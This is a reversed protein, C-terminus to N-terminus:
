EREPPDGTVADGEDERVYFAQDTTRDAIWITPADWPVTITAVVGFKDLEVCAIKSDHSIYMARNERGMAHLTVIDGPRLTNANM